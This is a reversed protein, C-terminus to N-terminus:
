KGEFETPIYRKRATRGNPKRNGTQFSKKKRTAREIDSEVVSFSGIWTDAWVTLRLSWSFPRGISFWVVRVMGRHGLYTAMARCRRTTINEMVMM